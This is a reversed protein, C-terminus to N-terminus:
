KELVEKVAKWLSDCLNDEWKFDPTFEGVTFIETDSNIWKNDVLFEIMQGISLRDMVCYKEYDKNIVAGDPTVSQSPGYYHYYRKKLAWKYLKKRSEDDLEGLQGINIYQKM